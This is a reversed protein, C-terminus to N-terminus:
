VARRGTKDIFERLAPIIYIEELPLQYLCVALTATKESLPINKDMIFFNRGRVKCLGSQVNIGTNRFNKEAVKIGMKEALNKLEQYIQDPKLISM